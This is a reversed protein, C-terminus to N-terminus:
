ATPWLRNLNQIWLMNNWYNKGCTMLSVFSLNLNMPCLLCTWLMSKLLSRPVKLIIKRLNCIHWIALHCICKIQIWSKQAAPNHSSFSKWWGFNQKTWKLRSLWCCELRPLWPLIWVLQPFYCLVTCVALCCLPLHQECINCTESLFKSLATLWLM